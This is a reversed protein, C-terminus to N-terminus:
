GEAGDHAGRRSRSRCPAAYRRDCGVDVLDHHVLEVELRGPGPQAHCTGSKSSVRRLEHEHRGREAIHVISCPRTRRVPRSDTTREAVRGTREAELLAARAARSM